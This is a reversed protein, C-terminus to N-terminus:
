RRLVSIQEIHISDLRGPVPDHLPPHAPALVFQTGPPWPSPTFQTVLVTRSHRRRLYAAMTSILVAGALAGVVVGILRGYNIVCVQEGNTLASSSSSEAPRCDQFFSGMKKVKDACNGGQKTGKGLGARYMVLQMLPSCRLVATVFFVFTSLVRHVSPIRLPQRYIM